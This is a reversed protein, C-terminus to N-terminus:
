SNSAGIFKLRKKGLFDYKFNEHNQMATLIAPLNRKKKLSIVIEDKLIEVTGSNRLFKEFTSRSCQHEYGELNLAMIRYLNHALISMTLDFDVKIVMSSSVNNLHFFEIQESIGKEVIWRKSYKRVLENTPIEFDNTIILAPKIKGHGTISVQRVYELDNKMTKSANYGKLIVREEYVYIARKKNGACEVRIKKKESATVKDLKEVINKGRRRITIFKIGRKNIIGLNQYTTFKSDFVLYKLDPNSSSKSNYFDLFELVVGVENKHTINTDGYDIIGSDPNQALVALISKLATKRKGSWNNELHESEGWYPITTFDLNITDELLGQKSWVQHLNRLFDLNMERTIRSSYSTFWAAKPLVNLGAFLGLGRDMCWLDDATYRRVNSLKLAVFSLISSLKNIKTTEPYLSKDIVRDIGLEKIYPLMCMTGVSNSSFKEKRLKLQVTKPATLRVPTPSTLESRQRRPLRSFGDGRLVRYCYSESVNYGQADLIVKIDPISFNKKRLAIILEDLERDTDTKHKGPYKIQFFYDVDPSVKLHKEFDRILSYFSSLSYNYVEAVEKAPKCDVFYSRLADYKKKIILETSNFYEKAKM